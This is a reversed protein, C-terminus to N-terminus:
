TAPSSSLWWGNGVLVANPDAEDNRILSQARWLQSSYFAATVRAAEGAEWADRCPIFSCYGVVRATFSTKRRTVLLSVGVRSAVTGSLPFLLKGDESLADLWEAAPRSAGANVYIANCRPLDTGVGSATRVEVNDWPMLNASARQALESEIEYAIVRGSPGVLQALIATYYGTGCGIHLVEAGREPALAGLLHGHLCPEGNNIQKDRDLAFLVNQYVHIPDDTPTSVQLGSIPSMALWPGPGLFYERPVLEFARELEDRLAGGAAAALKAYFERGAALRNRKTPKM